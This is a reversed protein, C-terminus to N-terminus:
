LPIINSGFKSCNNAINIGPQASNFLVESVSVSVPESTAINRAGTDGIIAAM